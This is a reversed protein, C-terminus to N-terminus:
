LSYSFTDAIESFSRKIPCAWHSSTMCFNEMHKLSPIISMEDSVCMENEYKKLHPCNM